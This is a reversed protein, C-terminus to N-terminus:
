SVVIKESVLNTNPCPQETIEKTRRRALHRERSALSRKASRLLTNIRKARTELKRIRKRLQDVKYEPTKRMAKLDHIRQIATAMQLAKKHVSQQWTLAEQVAQARAVPLFQRAEAYVKILATKFSGLHGSHYNKANKFDKDNLVHAIEHYIVGVCCPLSSKPLRIHPHWTGTFARGSNARRMNFVVSMNQINFKKAIINPLFKREPFPIEIKQEEPFTDHEWKYAHLYAM